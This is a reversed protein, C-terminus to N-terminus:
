LSSQSIDEVRTLGWDSGQEYSTADCMPMPLPFVLRRDGEFKLFNCKFFHLFYVLYKCYFYFNNRLFVLFPKLRSLYINTLLNVPQGEQFVPKGVM